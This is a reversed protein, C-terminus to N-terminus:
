HPAPGTSKGAVPVALKPVTFVTWLNMRNVAYIQWVTRAPRHEDSVGDGFNEYWHDGRPQRVAFVVEAAGSRAIGALVRLLSVWRRVVTGTNAAPKRACGTSKRPRM